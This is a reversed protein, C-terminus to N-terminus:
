EKTVTVHIKQTQRGGGFVVGRNLQCDAADRGHGFKIHSRAILLDNTPDVGIWKGHYLFEAWAHSEGEGEIIGVVYRAPIGAMHCLAIYIHAYDQCVGCGLSWAEEAGTRHSTVGKQYAFDQHLRRMMFIANTYVNDELEQKLSEFYARLCPGPRNLGHSHRFVPIEEEKAVEEFLVQGIEVNGKICYTFKRHPSRIAGYITSNGFSDRNESWSADPPLEISIDGISQRSNSTPIAKITFHEKQAAEEYEIKMRYEFEIETKRQTYNTHQM